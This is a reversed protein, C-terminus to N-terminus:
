KNKLDNIEKQIKRRQKVELNSAVGIGIVVAFVGIFFGALINQTIVVSVIYVIAYVFSNLLYIKRWKIKHTKYQESDMLEKYEDYGKPNKLPIIKLLIGLFDIFSLYSVCACLLIGLILIWIFTTLDM